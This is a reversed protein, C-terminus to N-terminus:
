QLHYLRLLSAIYTWLPLLLLFVLADRPQPTSSAVLTASEFAIAGALVLAVLDGVAVLRRLVYGRHDGWGGRLYSRSRFGLRPPRLGERRIDPEGAVGAVPDPRGRADLRARAASLLQGSGLKARRM